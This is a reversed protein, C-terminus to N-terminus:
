ENMETISSFIFLKGNLYSIETMAIMFNTSLKQSFTQVFIPRFLRHSLKLNTRPVIKM